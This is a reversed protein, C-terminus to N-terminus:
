PDCLIKIQTARRPSPNFSINEALVKENQAEIIQNIVKM